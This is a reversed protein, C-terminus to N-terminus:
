RGTGFTAHPSVKVIPAEQGAWEADRIAKMALKRQVPDARKVRYGVVLDHDRMLAVLKVIENVDFQGDGDTFFIWDM